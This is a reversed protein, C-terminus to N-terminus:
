SCSRSFVVWALSPPVNNFRLVAYVGAVAGGVIASVGWKHVCGAVLWRVMIMISISSIIAVIAVLIGVGRAIMVVVESHPPSSENIEDM